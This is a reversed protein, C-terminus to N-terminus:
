EAAISNMATVISSLSADDNASVLDVNNNRQNSIAKKLKAKLSEKNTKNAVDKSTIQVGLKDQLISTITSLKDTNDAIETLITIITQILQITKSDNVTNGKGYRVVQQDNEVVIKTANHNKNQKLIEETANKGTGYTSINGANKIDDKFTGYRSLPKNANGGRTNYNGGTKAFKSSDAKKKNTNAEGTYAPRTLLLKKESTKYSRRRVQGSTNGEITHVEGGSVDEVIGVHHIGSENGNADAFFVLDGPEGKSPSSVLQKKKKFWSYMSKTSADKPIISTPIKAKNANYSVFMACWPQGNMGYWEGFKTQNNGKEKYGINSAASSILDAAQKKNANTAISNFSGDSSSNDSSSSSSNDTTTGNLANYLKGAISNDMLNSIAGFLGTNEQSSSSSSDDSSTSVYGTTSSAQYNGYKGSKAKKGSETNQYVAWAKLAHNPTGYGKAAYKGTSLRSGFKVANELTYHTNNQKLWDIFGGGFNYGQALDLIEIKNYPNKYGSKSLRSKLEYVGAYCSDIPDTIGDQKDPYTRGSKTGQTSNGVGEAAQMPDGGSGHSEITMMSMLFDVWETSVGHKKCAEILTNKYKKVASPIPESPPNANLKSSTYGMGYKSRGYASVGLSSRSILDKMKYVQNDYKSEPDQVIANGKSDTGTVTVYHPNKGFPSINSTGRADKGMLVVPNGSQISDVMQNKNTTISSGLGNKNFYDKFFEPRTGGNKEKYGGKIAMRAAGIIPNGGRGYISSVANVAAAPGCGSDGITQYETDGPANYRINRIAPDTQKYGMGYQPGSGFGFFNAVDSARDKIWNGAKKVGNTAANKIAAVPDKFFDLVNSFNDKIWDGINGIWDSIAGFFKAVYSIPTAIFKALQNTVGAIKGSLSDEDLESEYDKIGDTDGKLALAIINKADTGVDVVTDITAKIGDAVVRVGTTVLAPVTMPVKAVNAVVTRIVSMVTNDDDSKTPMYKFMKGAKGTFGYKVVKGVDSIVESATNKAGEVFDNFNEVVFRVGTTVLAPVTM